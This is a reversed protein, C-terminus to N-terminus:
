DMSRREDRDPPILLTYEGELESEEPAHEEWYRQFGERDALTLDEREKFTIQEDEDALPVLGAKLYHRVKKATVALLGLNIDLEMLKQIDDETADDVFVWGADRLHSTSRAKEYEEESADPKLPLMYSTEREEDRMAQDVESFFENLSNM